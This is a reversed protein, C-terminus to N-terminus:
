TSAKAGEGASLTVQIIFLLKWQHRSCSWCLVTWTYVAIKNSKGRVVYISRGGADAFVVGAVCGARSGARAESGEGGESGARTSASGGRKRGEAVRLEESARGGRTRGLLMVMVAVGVASPLVLPGACAFFEM